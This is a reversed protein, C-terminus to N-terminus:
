KYRFRYSCERKVPTGTKDALLETDLFIQANKDGSADLLLTAVNNSILNGKLGADSMEGLTNFTLNSKLLTYNSDSLKISDGAKPVDYLWVLMAETAPASCLPLTISNAQAALRLTGTLLLIVALYRM